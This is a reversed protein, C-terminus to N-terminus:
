PKRAAVWHEDVTKFVAKALDMELFARDLEGGTEVHHSNPAMV